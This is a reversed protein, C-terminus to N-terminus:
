EKWKIGRWIRANGGRGDFMWDFHKTSSEIGKKKMNLGISTDSMKRHRNEKCWDAFKISFDKKTIYGDVYEETFDELFKQLFDSKAEFKEMRDKVTGENHFRRKKLLNILVGISKTGLNEYEEEPITKIIDIKESFSFPFDLILWRRYFGLSKDDTTPLNNTSIIIKAYNKDEFLNKQKFEYSILDNGTLKKLKSTRNLEAFNTEGLECMMKKYLRTAEFRSIMLTDLDTACCNYTGIFNRLLEMFSSKGNMGAGLLCFIRHLPYDRLLCYSVIQHLTKVYKKGVWEEFLKDMIPTEETRGLSHPIPNTLFYESTAEFREGTELDIIDDKFQIWSNEPDKPKNRRANQKVANIIETREKSNIINANSSGEVLNLVEIDDSMTWCKKASDWRWWIGAKDYYFPVIELFQRALDIKNAYSTILTTLEQKEKAKPELEDLISKDRRKDRVKIQKNIEDVFKPELYADVIENGIKKKNM